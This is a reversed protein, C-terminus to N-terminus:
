LRKGLTMTKRYKEVLDHLQNFTSKASNIRNIVEEFDDKNVDKKIMSHKLLLLESNIGSIDNVISWIKEAIEIPSNNYLDKLLLNQLNTYMIEVSKFTENSVGSRYNKILFEINSIYSNFQQNFHIFNNVFYVSKEIRLYRQQKRFVYITILGSALAGIMTGIITSIFNMWADAHVNKLVHILIGRGRGM